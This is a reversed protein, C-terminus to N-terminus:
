KGIREIENRFLVLRTNLNKLQGNHIKNCELAADISRKLNSATDIMERNIDVQIRNIRSQELVFWFCILIIISNIIVAIIMQKEKTTEGRPARLVRDM